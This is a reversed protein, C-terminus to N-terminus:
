FFDSVWSKMRELVRRTLPEDNMHMKIKKENQLVHVLLGYGTAYLPSQLTEVLDFLVRPKGVRVPCDFIEEALERAGTLLAGGGTLVIGNTMFQQLHHKVIDDNVLCFLERMRSEIILVLDSLRVVQLDEGHMMEVEVLEETEVLNSIAFGYRKKIREAEHKMIRLGIAIDNTVHNGAVPLVMTHRVTGNKYFAVDSTGGGIDIVGVGLEREDESLVADASALQELIIDNVNVGASQCCNLLNQVSSVSGMIIHASVELRVGHMGIPDQVRDQGNIIFYQPLIHLIQRGEPVAIAKASELVNDVDSQRIQGHKIPVVGSSNVSIIHAGSIGIYASEIPVGAMMEAEKVASSISSITKAIDVVVGKQLGHSPSKGIGVIEIQDGMKRAVLVCIKTTGVDISAIINDKILRAM